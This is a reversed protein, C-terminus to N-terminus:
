VFGRRRAIADWDGQRAASTGTGFGGHLVLVLPPAPPLRRPTSVHATREVGGVTLTLRTAGAPGASAAAAAAAAGGGTGLSVLLGATGLAAGLGFRTSRAM